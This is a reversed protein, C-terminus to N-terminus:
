PTADLSPAASLFSPLRLAETFYQECHSSSALSHFEGHLRPLMADRALVAEELTAFRRQYKRRKKSGSEYVSEIEIAVCFPKNQYRHYSTRFVNKYGTNSHAVHINRANESPTCIRLNSRRNDLGNGNIHDVLQGPVANMIVRHMRYQTRDNAKRGVVYTTNSIKAPFWGYGALLHMDDADVIAHAVVERRTNNRLPITVIGSM